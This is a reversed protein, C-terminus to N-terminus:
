TGASLGWMNYIIDRERKKKRKKVQREFHFIFKIILLREKGYPM